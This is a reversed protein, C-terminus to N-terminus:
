LAPVAAVTAADGTVLYLGSRILICIQRTNRTALVPIEDTVAAASRPFTLVGRM